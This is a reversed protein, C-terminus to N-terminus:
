KGKKIGLYLNKIFDQSSISGNEWKDIFDDLPKENLIERLSKDAHTLLEIRNKSNKFMKQFNELTKRDSVPGKDAIIVTKSDSIKLLENVADLYGRVSGGADIDIYPFSDPYFTNGTYLINASKLYVVVDGNTHAAPLHILQIEENETHIIVRNGFTLVSSFDAKSGSLRVFSNEQFVLSSGRNEILDLNGGEGDHLHTFIIFKFPLESNDRFIGTYELNEMNTVLIRDNGDTFLLSNNQRPGLLITSEDIKIQPLEPKKPPQSSASVTHYQLCFLGLIFALFIKM